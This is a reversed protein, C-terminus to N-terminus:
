VASRRGADIPGYLDPFVSELRDLMGDVGVKLKLDMERSTVPLVQFLHMPPEGPVEFLDEGFLYPPILVAGSLQTGPAYPKAPDGNPISHGWGLWSSFEHPIRALMKLLRVPWYVREDKFREPSPNWDNPLLMCLEAYQWAPANEVDAPVNMPYASMGSTAILYFHHKASPALLHVDLHVRESIIEHFVTHEGGHVTRLHEGIRADDAHGIKDSRPAAEQHRYMRSGGPSKEDSM